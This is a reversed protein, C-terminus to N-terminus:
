LTKLELFSPRSVSRNLIITDVYEVLGKVQTFILTKRQISMGTGVTPSSHNIMNATVIDRMYAQSKNALDLPKDGDCKQCSNPRPLRRKIYSHIANYTPAEVYRPHNRGYKGVLHHPYFGPRKVGTKAISIKRKTAETM